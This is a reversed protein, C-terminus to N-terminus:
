SHHTIANHHLIAAFAAPTLRHFRRPCVMLDSSWPILVSPRIEAAEHALHLSEGM